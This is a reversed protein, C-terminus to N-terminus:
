ANVPAGVRGTPQRGALSWVQSRALRLVSLGGIGSLLLLLTAPLPIASLVSIQVDVPDAFSGFGAGLPDDGFEGVLSLLALPRFADAAAGDLHGFLLEIRDAGIPDVEVGVGALDGSLFSQGAETVFLAGSPAPGLDAFPVAVLLGTAAAPATSSAAGDGLLDFGLAPDHFAVGVGSLVPAPRTPIGLTAAAAGTAAALTAALLLIAPLM